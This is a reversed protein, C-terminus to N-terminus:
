EEFPVDLDGPDAPLGRGLAWGASRRPPRLAEWTAATVLIAVILSGAILLLPLLSM